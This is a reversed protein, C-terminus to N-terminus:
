SLELFLLRLGRYSNTMQIFFALLFVNNHYTISVTQESKIGCSAFSLHYHLTTCLSNNSQHMDCSLLPHSDFLYGKHFSVIYVATEM